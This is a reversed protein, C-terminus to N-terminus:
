AANAVRTPTGPAPAAPTTLLLANGIANSATPKIASITKVASYEMPPLMRLCSSSVALAAAAERAAKVRDASSIATRVKESLQAYLGSTSKFRGEAEPGTVKPLGLGSDEGGLGGIVQGMYDNGDALRRAIVTADGVGGALAEVDQQLRLGTLEFRELHRTMGEIGPAGLASAVNGLSQLLQPVLARVEVASKQVGEIAEQANLIAQSQKLLETSGDFGQVDPGASAALTSYRTRSASLANFAGPTGSLAANAQLPLKQSLALLENMERVSKDDGGADAGAFALLGLAAVVCALALGMLVPLFRVGIMKTEAM